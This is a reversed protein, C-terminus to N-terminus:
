FYILAVVAVAWLGTNILLPKDKLLLEDPAGGKKEVHVLYLYRFIFYLVFPVTLLMRGGSVLATRAEFTYLTYAVLTSTIVITMIQDLMALNYQQLSARHASAGEELLVIEQRRKGFGLFLALLTVCVYLWPSFHAVDAVISGAVVRLLFGLSLVMVDVIVIDKLYFSYAVNQLIYAVTVVGVMPNILFAGGVGTTVLIVASIIAFRPRLKGSPLPRSQKRPHQRDKEMDVLDNMIYVSSSVLSFCVVVLTTKLFLDPEFLKGDFVLAAYIILNKVWQHPRMTRILGRLNASFGSSNTTSVTMIGDSNPEFQLRERDRRFAYATM